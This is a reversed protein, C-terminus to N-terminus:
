TGTGGSAVLKSSFPVGVEWATLAANATLPSSPAIALPRRVNITLGKTDARGDALAARV